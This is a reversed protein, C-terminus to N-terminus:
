LKPEFEARFRDALLGREYELIVGGCHHQQVIMSQIQKVSKSLLNHGTHPNM